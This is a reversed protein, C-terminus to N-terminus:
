KQNLNDFKKQNQELDKMAKEMKLFDQRLKSEEKDLKDKYTAIDKNKNEMDRNILVDKGDYVGQGKVTYAKLLKEVEFGVGSDTALRRPTGDSYNRSAWQINKWCILLNKIM